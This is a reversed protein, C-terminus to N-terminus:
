DWRNMWVERLNRPKSFKLDSIKENECRHGSNNPISQYWSRDNKCIAWVHLLLSFLLFITPKDQLHMQGYLDQLWNYRENMVLINSSGKFWIIWTITIPYKSCWTCRHIKFHKWSWLLCPSIALFNEFWQSWFVLVSQISHNKNNGSPFHSLKMLSKSTTPLQLNCQYFLQSQAFHSIQVKSIRLTRQLCANILNEENLVQCIDCM